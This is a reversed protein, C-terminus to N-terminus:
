TTKGAPILLRITKYINQKGDNEKESATPRPLDAGPLLLYMNYSVYSQYIYMSARWVIYAHM